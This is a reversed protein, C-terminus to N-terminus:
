YAASASGVADELHEFVGNDGQDRSPSLLVDSTDLQELVQRVISELEQTPIAM